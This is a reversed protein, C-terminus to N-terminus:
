NKGHDAKKGGFDVSDASGFFASASDIIPPDDYNVFTGSWAKPAALALWAISRVPISPTELQGDVKLRRYYESQEPPMVRQGKDRLLAQMATDVVGPRVAVATITPEEVALVHTLQNLAAKAACYASAAAIPHQAAGSSVNVIRGKTDRLHAIAANMLFYPGLLNVELNYRWDKPATQALTDLPELIGANNILAHVRGFRAITEAVARRCFEPKAIDGTILLLDTGDARATAAVQELDRESRAILTLAAGKLALWCAVSAGIGRSAGSIIIVPQQPM